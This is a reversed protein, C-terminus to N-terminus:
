KKDCIKRGLDGSVFEPRVFYKALINSNYFLREGNEKKAELVNYLFQEKVESYNVDRKDRHLSIIERICQDYGHLELDKILDDCSGFYTKWDSEKVSKRKRKTGKLPKLTKTSYFFKKGIYKKGTIRHTILYIFGFYDQIDDSTFPKNNFLWPTSDYHFV